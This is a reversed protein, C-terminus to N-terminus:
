FGISRVRSAEAVTLGADELWAILEPDDALEGIRASNRSARIREVMDVRGSAAILYAMACPIGRDDVFYPERSDPFHLNRPFVGRERYGRLLEVNRARAERQAPTLGRIDAALLMEEAGRLHAQIREVETEVTRRLYESRAGARDRRDAAAILAVMAVALLLLGVRNSSAPNM